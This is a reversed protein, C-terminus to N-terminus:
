QDSMSEFTINKSKLKQYQLLLSVFYYKLATTTIDQPIKFPKYYEENIYKEKSM